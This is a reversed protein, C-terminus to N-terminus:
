RDGLWLHKLASFPFLRIHIHIEHLEMGSVAHMEVALKVKIYMYIYEPLCTQNSLCQRTNMRMLYGTMMGIRM